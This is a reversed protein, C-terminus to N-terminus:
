TKFTIYLTGKGNVTSAFLPLFLNLSHRYAGFIKKESKRIVTSQLLPSNKFNKKAKCILNLTVAIM